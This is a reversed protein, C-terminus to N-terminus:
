PAEPADPGGVPLALARVPAHGPARHRRDQPEGVEVAEDLLCRTAPAQVAHDLDPDRALVLRVVELDEGPGVDIGRVEEGVAEARDGGTGRSAAVTARIVADDRGHSGVLRRDVAAELLGTEALDGHDGQEQLLGKGADGVRREDRGGDSGPLDGTASWSVISSRSARSSASGGSITVAIFPRGSRSPTMSTTMSRPRRGSARKGSASTVSRSRSIRSASM